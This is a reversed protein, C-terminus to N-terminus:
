SMDWAINTQLHKLKANSKVVLALITWNLMRTTTFQLVLIGLALCTLKKHSPKNSYLPISQSNPTEGM